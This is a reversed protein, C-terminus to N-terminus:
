LTKNLVQQVSIHFNGGSQQRYIGFEAELRDSQFEGILVYSMKELLESTLNVIGHLTIHIADSTDSTLGMVRQHSSASYTDMEKFM